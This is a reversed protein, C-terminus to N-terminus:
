ASMQWVLTVVGLIGTYVAFIYLPYRKVFALLGAISLYAAVFAVVSGAIAAPMGIFPQPDVFADYATKAGALLIIPGSMLFSFRTAQERDLGVGLGGVITAGARSVGPFLAVAQALGVLVAKQWTLANLSHMQKRSLLEASVLAASTLLFFAGIWRLSSFARDIVGSFPAAIIATVATAIVVLWALKRDDAREADKSFFAKTINTIDTRFYIAVALLTALHLVVDYALGYEAWGLGKHILMLHGSSSIPLFETVGQVVGLLVARWFEIM